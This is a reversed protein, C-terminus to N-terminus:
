PGGTGDDDGTSEVVKTSGHYYLADAKNNLVFADYIVRGEVLWGSIGPPDTHIKYESLQKPACCAIPHTLIFSCGSPLRSAPVKVIKVGDIEGMIGKLIMNQSVDGYRMFAPDQKLLNAFKYSALCVRGADPVNADGLVEQGALFLEYANSKSAATTAFHGTKACAALALKNFVYTDYEPIVVQALQRSVARGADMVMQSQTKNGKDITFTWSRDKTITLAQIENGLESPTGYRNAGSRTYDSMAVTPISYVNVTKVGTFEYENSIVLSAQSAREFKEDVKNSYKSALNVTAM